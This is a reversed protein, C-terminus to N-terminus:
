HSALEALDGLASIPGLVIMLDAASLETDARPPMLLTGDSRRVGLIMVGEYPACASRVSAGALVSRESIVLEEVRMDPAMSVMDVFELMAPRLALSAMRSGSLRYPSVVRNSGARQLAEVSEASSARGIIFLDPNRARALLTIYVNVADSDVACLLGRAREIGAKELVEERTPDDLIYSVKAEVLDHELSADVEVVVVGAGQAQLEEVAARGVRGFSCVVFHGRMDEIRQRM